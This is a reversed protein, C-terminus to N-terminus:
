LRASTRDTRWDGPRRDTSGGFTGPATLEAVTWVAARWACVIAVLFLGAIWLAVFLVVTILIAVPDGRGRLAGGLATWASTTAMASPVLVLALALTPLWFRALAALPHRASRVAAVRLSAGVGAGGLAIRRAAVAGLIEALMWALVVVVIVEPAARVVRVAIPTATDSPVVLEGYTISVIRVAGWGLAVALPLTAVLRAVLIRATVAGLGPASRAVPRAEPEALGALDEDAAVIRACEAELAAALWGGGLLWLSALGGAAVTAAVVAPPFTGLAIPTIAPALLNGLGVPTPLVIIPITVLLIGGRVLFAALALPWTAPTALTILLAEILAAGRTV